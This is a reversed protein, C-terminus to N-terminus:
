FQFNDIKRNNLIYFCSNKLFVEGLSCGDEVDMWGDKDKDTKILVAMVDNVLAKVEDEVNDRNQDRQQIDGLEKFCHLLKAKDICPRPERDTTKPCWYIWIAQSIFDFVQVVFVKIREISCTSILKKKFYRWNHESHKLNVNRFQLGSLYM